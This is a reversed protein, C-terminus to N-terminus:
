KLMDRLKNPHRTTINDPRLAICKRMGAPTNATWLSVLLGNERMARVVTPSVDNYHNNLGLAGLDKIRRAAADAAKKSRKAVPSLPLNIYYPVASGSKVAAAWDEGVGTYFARDFLGYKQLLADVAPLNATSKLDLNMKIEPHAAIRRFAEELPVGEDEKPAGSHIMVPRGSPRFTVDMEIIDCNEAVVKEM